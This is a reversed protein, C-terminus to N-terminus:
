AKGFFSNYGEVTFTEAKSQIHFKDQSVIHKLHRGIILLLLVKNIIVKKGPNQGTGIGRTGTVAYIFRHEHRDVAVWACYYNKYGIYSHMEDM